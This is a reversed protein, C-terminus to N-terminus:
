DFLKNHYLLVCKGDNRDYAVYFLSNKNHHELLERYKISNFLYLKQNEYDIWLDDFEHNNYRELPEATEPLEDIFNYQRQFHSTKNKMNESASVWRLNDLRNDTRNHNIHDIFPKDDPEDNPIFQLAIIRHKQYSKLNLHCKVYGKRKDISEKIIRDTGKRRIPFPEQSWIEYDNDVVCELWEGTEETM